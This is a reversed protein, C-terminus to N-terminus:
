TRALTVRESPFIAQACGTMVPACRQGGPAPQGAGAGAAARRGRGPERVDMSARKRVWVLATALVTEWLYIVVALEPRGEDLVLLSPFWVAAVARAMPGFPARLIWSM